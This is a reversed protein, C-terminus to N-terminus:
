GFAVGQRQAKEIQAIIYKVISFRGTEIKMPFMQVPSAPLLFAADFRYPDTLIFNADSAMARKLWLIPNDCDINRVIAEWAGFGDRTLADSLANKDPFYRCIAMASLGAKYRVAGITFADLSEREYINKGAAFRHEETTMSADYM